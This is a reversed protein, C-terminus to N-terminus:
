MESQWWVKKLDGLDHAMVVGLLQHQIIEWLENGQLKNNSTNPSKCVILIVFVTIVDNPADCRVQRGKLTLLEKKRCVNVSM